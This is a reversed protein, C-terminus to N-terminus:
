EIKALAISHLLEKALHEKLDNIDIKSEKLLNVTVSDMISVTIEKTIYSATVKIELASWHSDYRFKLKLCSGFLYSQIETELDYCFLAMYDPMIYHLLIKEM